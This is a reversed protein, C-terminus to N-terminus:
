LVLKMDYHPIDDELYSDSQIMFGFSQYFAKLYAQAQINVVKAEPYKGRGAALAEECIRRGYGYGRADPSVVLRGIRFGNPESIVRAYALIKDEENKLMLHDSILDVEDVDQYPCHQEVVFVATRLYYISFLEKPTLQDFPKLVLLM